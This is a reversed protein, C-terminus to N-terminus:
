GRDVTALKQARKFSSTRVYRGLLWLGVSLVATVICMTWTGLAQGVQGPTLYGRFVVAATELARTAIYIWLLLSAAYIPLSAILRLSYIAKNMLM